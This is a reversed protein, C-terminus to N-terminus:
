CLGPECCVSLIQQTFSQQVPHETETRWDTRDEGRERSGNIGPEQGGKSRKVAESCHSDLEPLFLQPSTRKAGARAETCFAGQRLFILFAAGTELGCRVLGMVVKSIKCCTGRERKRDAQKEGKEGGKEDKCAGKTDTRPVRWKTEFVKWLLATHFTGESTSAHNQEEQDITQWSSEGPM